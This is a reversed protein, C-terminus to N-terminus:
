KKELFVERIRVWVTIIEDSDKFNVGFVGNGKSKETM